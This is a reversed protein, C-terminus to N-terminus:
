KAPMERLWTLRYEAPLRLERRVEEAAAECLARAQGLSVGAAPNASVEVMPELNLRDVVAPGEVNRIAVVTSLPVMEGRTTRVKLAKVTDIDRLAAPVQVTVQWTRGVKNSDNVDIPGLHVQLTTDIDGLSIGLQRCKERDIDLSLQPRPASDTNAWVDSLQKGEDLREALKDALKRVQDPEPGSIALDVPYGCRPFRGPGSLDRLRVLAEPIEDGLRTRVEGLLQERRAPATETPALQALLCPRDRVRDFPHENLAVTHEVGASERLLRECRELIRETREQSAGAPLVVDLLLYGPNTARDPADLNPTFDFVLHYDMGAPFGARLEALRGQVAASGTQPSAGCLPYIGLAVSPIGDLRVRSERGTAGLQVNAVDRLRVTGGHGDTKLVTDALKELDALEGLATLPLRIASGDKGAPRDAAGARVQVKAKELAKLMDGATLDLAALRDPDIWIRVVVDQRGFLVVAGVGPLRALEDKIQIAYNSLALVDRTADPSVLNVFMLVGPSRKEVALGGQKVVDPLIPEALAVRNQVLVQAMNLDTGPKFAVTLTYDGAGTSRSSLYLLGEVGNVQQEIPAAVTDALVQANAGPYSATVAVIEPLPKDRAHWGCGCVALFLSPFAVLLLRQKLMM